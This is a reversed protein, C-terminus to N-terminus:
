ALRRGASRLESGPHCPSVGAEGLRNRRERGPCGGGSRGGHCSEGGRCKYGGRQGGHRRGCKRCRGDALGRGNGGRQARCGSGHGYGGRHGCRRVQLLLVVAWGWRGCGTRGYDFQQFALDQGASDEGILRVHRGGEEQVALEVFQRSAARGTGEEAPREGHEGEVVTLGACGPCVVGAEPIGIGYALVAEVLDDVAGLFISGQAEQQLCCRWWWDILDPDLVACAM